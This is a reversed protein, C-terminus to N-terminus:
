NGRASQNNSGRKRQIKMPRVDQSSDDQAATDYTDQIEALRPRKLINSLLMPSNSSPTEERPPPNPSQQVVNDDNNNDNPSSPPVLIVLHDDSTPSRPEPPQQQQQQQQEPDIAGAVSAPQEENVHEQEQEQQQGEETQEQQQAAAIASLVAPNKIQTHQNLLAIDAHISPLEKLLEEERNQLQDIVERINEKMTIMKAVNEARLFSVENSVDTVRLSQADLSTKFGDFTNRLNDISEASEKTFDAFKQEAERFKEHSDKVLNTVRGEVEKFDHSGSKATNKVRREIFEMLETRLNPTMHAVQDIRPNIRHIEGWLALINQDMTNQRTKNQALENQIHAPHPPYLQQMQHIIATALHETSLNDFRQQLSEVLVEITNTRHTMPEKFEKFDKELTPIKQLLSEDVAPTSHVPSPPPLPQSVVPAAAIETRLASIQERLRNIEEEQRKMLEEQQKMSEEQQKMSEERQKMSEEQRKVSQEVKDVESSVMEDKELADRESQDMREELGKLRDHVNVTSDALVNNMKADLESDKEQLLRVKTELNESHEKFVDLGSESNAFALKQSMDLELKIIRNTIREMENDFEEMANAVKRMGNRGEEVFEILGKAEHESDGVVERKLEQIERKQNDFGEKLEKLEQIERKQNDFSEQLTEYHGREENQFNNFQTNQEDLQSKQEDLRSKQEDIRALFEDKDQYFQLLLGKVKDVLDQMHPLQAFEPEHQSFLNQLKQFNVTLRAIQSEYETMASRTMSSSAFDRFDQKLDHFISAHMQTQKMNQKLEDEFDRLDEKIRPIDKNFSSDDLLRPNSVGTDTLLSSLLRRVAKEQTAKNQKIKLDSQELTSTHKETRRGQDEALSAFSRHHKQWRNSLSQQRAGKEKLLDSKFTLNSTNIVAETYDAFSKVFNNSLNLAM